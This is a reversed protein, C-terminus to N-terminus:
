AGLAARRRYRLIAGVGAFGALMMAWTAPEPIPDDKIRIVTTQIETQHEFEGPFGWTVFIGALWAASDVVPDEDFPDADLVKYFGKVKCSSGIGLIKIDAGSANRCPSPDLEQLVEKEPDGVGIPPPFTFETISRLEIPSFRPVGTNVFEFELIVDGFRSEFVEQAEPKSIALQASSASGVLFSLGYVISMLSTRIPALTRM